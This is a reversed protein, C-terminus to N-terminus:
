RTGWFYGWMFGVAFVLSFVGVIALGTRVIGVMTDAYSHEFGVPFCERTKDQNLYGYDWDTLKKTEM